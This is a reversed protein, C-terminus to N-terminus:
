KHKAGMLSGIAQEPKPVAPMGFMKGIDPPQPPGGPMKGKMISALNQDQLYKMMDNQDM